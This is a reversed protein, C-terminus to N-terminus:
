LFLGRCREEFSGLNRKRIGGSNRVSWFYKKKLFDSNIKQM